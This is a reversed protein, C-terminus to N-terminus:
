QMAGEKPLGVACLRSSSKRAFDPPKDLKMIHLGWSEACFLLLLNHATPRGLSPACYQGQVSSRRTRRTKFRRVLAARGLGDHTSAGEHVTM